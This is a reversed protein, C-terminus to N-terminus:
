AHTRTKDPDYFPTLGVTATCDIGDGKIRLKTGIESAEPSLHVLALSKKM